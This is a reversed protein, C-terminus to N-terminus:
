TFNQKGNRGVRTLNKCIEVAIVCDGARGDATLYNVKAVVAPALFRM